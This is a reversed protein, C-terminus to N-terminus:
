LRLFIAVQQKVQWQCISAQLHRIPHGPAEVTVVGHIHARRCPEPCAQSRAGQYLREGSKKNDRLEGGEGRGRMSQLPPKNWLALNVMVADAIIRELMELTIRKPLRM